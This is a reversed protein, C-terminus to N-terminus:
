KPFMGPYLCVQSMGPRVQGESTAYNGGCVEQTKEHIHSLNMFTFVQSYSYVYATVDCRVARLACSERM